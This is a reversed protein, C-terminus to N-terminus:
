EDLLSHLSDIVWDIRDALAARQAELEAIRKRALALDAKLQDREARIDDAGAGGGKRGKSSTAVAKKGSTPPATSKLPRKKAKTSARMAM